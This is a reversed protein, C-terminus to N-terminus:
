LLVGQRLRDVAIDLYKQELEIGICKRGLQKAAVATTGSGLFPDLILNGKNHKLLEKILETPKETPHLNNGTRPCHIVDVPRSTFEHGDKAYFLCAEWQRGYEHKLDGMSWNNKVWAIVSKPKPMDAINDWRCFMFAAKSAKDIAMNILEIPLSDDNHIKDHKELRRNSQFSMGYPPDTLVLDISDPEFHPLMELCDGHLLVIGGEDYYVYKQLSDPIM